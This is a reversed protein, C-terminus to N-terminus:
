LVVLKGGSALIHEGKELKCGEGVYAYIVADGPAGFGGQGRAADLMDLSIDGMLTVLSSGVATWKSGSELWLQPNGSITGKLTSGVFHLCQKRESDGMLFDGQVDMDEFTAQVGYSEPSVTRRTFYMRDDTLRTEIIIGTESSLKVNKMYIDVNTSKCVAIQGSATISSDQIDIVGVDDWNEMGGHLLMGYKDCTCECNRVTISSDGDQIFAMNGSHLRSNNFALHCDNDAYGCYGNGECNVNCDNVEAYCYGGGADTSVAAWAAAYIDCNYFFTESNDMSLHTRCNGGLGLPYPPEMMGPGIVPVYDEPLPGGYSALKSNYVKLTGGSNAITCCRTAGNTVIESDRIIATGKEYALVAAGKSTFDSCGTGSLAISANNIEMSSSEGKVVITSLCSQDSEFKFSELKSPSLDAFEPFSHQASVAGDEVWIAADTVSPKAFAGGLVQVEPKRRVCSNHAQNRNSM